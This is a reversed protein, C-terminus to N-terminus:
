RALKRAQAVAAQGLSICGDNPPVEKHELVRLGGDGLRQRTKRLLYANQFVGGSLTVARIGTRDRISECVTRIVDAVRMGGMDTISEIKGPVGLCM